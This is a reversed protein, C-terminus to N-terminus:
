QTICMLKRHVSSECCCSVHSCPAGLLCAERQAPCSPVRRCDWPAVQFLQAVRYVHVISTVDVSTRVQRAIGLQEMAQV